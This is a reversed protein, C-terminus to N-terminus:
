SVSPVSESDTDALQLQQRKKEMEMELKRKERMLKALDNAEQTKKAQLHSLEVQHRELQASHDSVDSSSSTTTPKTSRDPAPPISSRSTLDVAVERHPKSSRTDPVSSSPDINKDSLPKNDVHAINAPLQSGNVVPDSVKDTVSASVLAAKSDSVANSPLTLVTSPKTSRDVTPVKASWDRVLAVQSRKPRDPTILCDVDYNSPAVVTRQLLGNQQKATNDDSEDDVQDTAIDPVNLLFDLNVDYDISKVVVFRCILVNVNPAPKEM